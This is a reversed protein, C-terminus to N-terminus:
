PSSVSYNYDGSACGATLSVNAANEMKAFLCYSNTSPVYLYQHTSDVAETPVQNLYPKPSALLPLSSPYVTNDRYSQELASQIQKIDSKRQLDRANKTLNDYSVISIAMLIAIVSLTVLLEALTFGKQLNIIKKM